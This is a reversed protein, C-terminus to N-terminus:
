LDRGRLGGHTLYFHAPYRRDGFEFEHVPGAKERGSAGLGDAEPKVIRASGDFMAVTSRAGPQMWHREKSDHCAPALWYAVKRDPTAVHNMSGCTLYSLTLPSGEWVDTWEPYLRSQLGSGVSVLRDDIQASMTFRYSGLEIGDMIPDDLPRLAGGDSRVLERWRAFSELGKEDAPSLLVDQIMAPGSASVLYPGLTAFYFDLMSGEAVRGELRMEEEGRRIPRVTAMGSVGRSDAPFAWGNTPDHAVCMFVAPVVAGDLARTEPGHPFRSEHDLSFALTAKGHEGMNQVCREIRARERLEPILVAVGLTLAGGAALLTVALELRTFGQRPRQTRMPALGNGVCIRFGPGGLHPCGGGEGGNQPRM